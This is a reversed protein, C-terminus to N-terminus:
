SARSPTTTWPRRSARDRPAPRLQVRHRPVVRGPAPLGRRPAGAAARDVREAGRDDQLHEGRRAGCFPRRGRRAPERGAGPLRKGHVGVERRYVAAHGTAGTAGDRRRLGARVAGRRRGQAGGEDVRLPSEHAACPLHRQLIYVNDPDLLANESPKGLLVDPHRMYYQDLPNDLAVLMSLAPDSGRGARGAQQWMSAITGPYGVLLSADLGGVDIGLELASTATVGLLRGGFLEREIRRREEAMYGARYAAVKDVLEPRVKGVAAPLLAPPARRRGPGPRLRHDARQGVRAPHLPRLGRPQRQAPGHAGQRRLAPELPRLHPARAALRRGHGRDRAARDAAHLAGGPQRHHRLHRHVPPRGGAPRHGASPQATRVAPRVQPSAGPGAGAACSRPGPAGPRATRRTSRASGACAACCVRWRRASSAGTPTRRTSRRRVQPPPLVRGVAPPEAPHRRPAHRPQHAPGAGAQPHPGPRGAAHRRRLNRGAPQRDGRRRGQDLAQWKGLQDQALAKTPYLYLARALPDRALAELVPINFALTKGSATSTAVVVNHGDLALNIAEAQHAYLQAAGARPARAQVPPSLREHLQGYRAARPPLTQVHVIQGAYGKSHRLADLFQVPDFSM